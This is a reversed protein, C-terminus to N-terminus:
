CGARAIDPSIARAYDFRLGAAVSIRSGAHFEDTVFASATNFRGAANSPGSVFARTPAPANDEYRVGTPVVLLSRHQGRDFQGGVKWQHDTGLLGTQYQSVSARATWRIQKLEGIQSPAGSSSTRQTSGAPGARDPRRRQAHHGAVMRLRGASM